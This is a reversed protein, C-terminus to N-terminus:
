PLERIEKEIEYYNNIAETLTMFFIKDKHKENISRIIKEINYIDPIDKIHGSAIVPIVINKSRFNELEKSNYLNILLKVFLTAPIYDYDLQIASRSLIKGAYWSFTRREKKKYYRNQRPYRIEKLADRKKIWDIEDKPIDVGFLFKNNLKTSYKNLAESFLKNISYIPYEIIPSKEAAKQNVNTDIYWPFLNSNANRFDYLGEAYLGQTVSTDCKFGNEILAPIVKESPQICYSGARFAICEYNQDIKKLISLLYDKGSKILEYIIEPPLSALSWKTMDLRWKNDKYESNIWQPHLHLQVDSKISIASKLANEWANTIDKSKGDSMEKYAFQQMCEAMLTIRANQNELLEFLKMTPEYQVEFFDGSGDGYLEWDNTLVLGLKM